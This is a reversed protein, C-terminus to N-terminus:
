DHTEGFAKSLSEILLYNLKGKSIEYPNTWNHMQLM